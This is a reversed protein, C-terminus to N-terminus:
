SLVREPKYDECYRACHRAWLLCECTQQIFSHIFVNFGNGYSFLLFRCGLFLFFILVHKPPQIELTAISHFVAFVLLFPQNEWSLKNGPLLFSLSFFFLLQLIVWSKSGSSVNYVYSGSDSMKYTPFSLGLPVYHCGGPWFSDDGSKLLAILATFGFFWAFRVM